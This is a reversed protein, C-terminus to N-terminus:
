GRPLGICVIKPGKVSVKQLPDKSGTSVAAVYDVIAAESGKLKSLKTAGTMKNLVSCYPDGESLTQV